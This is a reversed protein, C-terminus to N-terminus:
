IYAAHRSLGAENIGQPLVQELPALASVQAPRAEVAHRNVGFVCNMRANSSEFQELYENSDINVVTSYSWFGLFMLSREITGTLPVLKELPSEAFDIIKNVIDAEDDMSFVTTLEEISTSPTEDGLVGALAAINMLMWAGCFIDNLQVGQHIQHFVVGSIDVGAAELGEKLMEWMTITPYLFSFSWHRSDILTCVKLKPAYHLTVWHNRPFGFVRQQEAVPIIISKGQEEAEKIVQGAHAIAETISQLFPVEIDTAPSLILTNNAEYYCPRIAGGLDMKFTHGSASMKKDLVVCIDGAHCKGNLPM